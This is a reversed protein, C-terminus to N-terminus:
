VTVGASQPEEPRKKLAPRHGFISLCVTPRKGAHEIRRPWCRGIKEYGIPANKKQPKEKKRSNAKV